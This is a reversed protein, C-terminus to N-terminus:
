GYRTAEVRVQNVNANTAKAPTTEIKSLRPFFLPAQQNELIRRVHINARVEGNMFQLEAEFLIM